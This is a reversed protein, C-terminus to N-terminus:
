VLFRTVERSMGDNSFNKQDLSVIRGKGDVVQLNGGVNKRRDVSAGARREPMQQSGAPEEQIEGLRFRYRLYRIKRSAKRTTLDKTLVGVKVATNGFTAQAIKRSPTKHSDATTWRSFVKRSSTNLEDDTVDEKPDTYKEIAQVYTKLIVKQEQSVDEPRSM